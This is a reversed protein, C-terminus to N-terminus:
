GGSVGRAVLVAKLREFAAMTAQVAAAAAARDGSRGAEEASRAAEVLMGAGLNAAAGKISHAEKRVRELDGSAMAQDLESLRKPADELFVQVVKRILSEDGLMRDLMDSWALVGMEAENAGGDAARDRGPRHRRGVWHRLVERLRQPNVPKSVYDDMGAALCKEEDGTVAYATMAIVPVAPDLVGTSGGRIARTAEYGDLGPMQCDMLVAGYRRQRLAQIAELGDAVSEAEYGLRKLQALAVVRNTEIDEAVLVRARAEVGASLAAEAGGSAAQEATGPSSLLVQTLAERLREVRVPKAVVAGNEVLWEGLVPRTLPILLILPPRQGGATEALGAGVAAGTGEPQEADAVVLDFGPGATRAAGLSAAGLGLGEALDVRCGWVALQRGLWARTPAHPEVVLVRKGEFERASGGETGAERGTRQFSLTFWFRSGSGVRSEVEIVGGMRKVLEQAIALGLGTGGDQRAVLGGAQVFPEFVLPVQQASM